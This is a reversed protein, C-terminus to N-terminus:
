VTKVWRNKFVGNSGIKYIGSKLEGTHLFIQLVTETDGHLRYYRSIESGTLDGYNGTLIKHISEPLLSDGYPRKPDICPAGTELFQWTVVAHQLLKLHEETVIFTKM